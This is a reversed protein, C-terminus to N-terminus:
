SQADLDEDTLMWDRMKRKHLEEALGEAEARVARLRERCDKESKAQADRRTLRIGFFTSLAGSLATLLAAVGVLTTDAFIM